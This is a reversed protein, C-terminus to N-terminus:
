LNESLYRECVSFFVEVARGDAWKWHGFGGDELCYSRLTSWFSSNLGLPVGDVGRGVSAETKHWAGPLAALDPEAFRLPCVGLQARSPM